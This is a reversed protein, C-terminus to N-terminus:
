LRTNELLRTQQSNDKTTEILDSFTPEILALSGRYEEALRPDGSLAFGRASSEARRILLRSDALKKLVQLSHNVWRADSRSKTELFFSIGCILLLAILGIGLLTRQSRMAVRRKGSLWEVWRSARVTRSLRAASFRRRRVPSSLKQGSM